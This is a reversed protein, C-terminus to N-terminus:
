DTWLITDYLNEGYSLKWGVGNKFTASPRFAEPQSEDFLASPDIGYVEDLWEGYHELYNVAEKIIGVLSKLEDKSSTDFWMIPSRVTGQHVSEFQSAYIMRINSLCTSKSLNALKQIQSHIRTMLMLFMENQFGKLCADLYQPRHFYIFPTRESKRENDYDESECDQRSEQYIEEHFRFRQGSPPIAVEGVYLTGHARTEPDRSQQLHARFLYVQRTLEESCNLSDMTEKWIRLSVPCTVLGANHRTRLLIVCTTYYMIRLAMKRFSEFDIRLEALLGTPTKQLGVDLHEVNSKPRPAFIKRIPDKEYASLHHSSCSLPGGEQPKGCRFDVSLWKVNGRVLNRGAILAFEDSQSVCCSKVISLRKATGAYRFIHVLYHALLLGESELELCSNFVALDNNLNSKTIKPFNLRNKGISKLLQTLYGKSVTVCGNKPANNIQTGSTQAGEKICSTDNRGASRDSIIPDSEVSEVYFPLKGVLNEKSEKLAENELKQGEHIQRTPTGAITNNGGKSERNVASNPSLVLVKRFGLFVHIGLEVFISLTRLSAVRDTNFLWSTNVKHCEKVDFGTRLAEWIDHRMLHPPHSSLFNWIHVAEDQLSKYTRPTDHNTSCKANAVSIASETNEVCDTADSYKYPPSLAFSHTGGLTAAFSRSQVFHRLNAFLLHPSLSNRLQPFRDFFLTEALCPFFSLIVATPPLKSSISDINKSPSLHLIDQVNKQSLASRPLIIQKDAVEMNRSDPTDNQTSSTNSARFFKKISNESECNCFTKTAVNFLVIREETNRAPLHESLSILVSSDANSVMILIEYPFRTLITPSDMIENLKTDDASNCSRGSSCKSLASDYLLKRALAYEFERRKIMKEFLSGSPIPFNEPASISRTNAYSQFYERWFSKNLRIRPNKVRIPMLTTKPVIPIEGSRSHMINKLDLCGLCVALTLSHMVMDLAQQAVLSESSRKEFVQEEQPMEKIYETIPKAAKETCLSTDQLVLDGGLLVTQIHSINTWNLQPLFRDPFIASDKLLESASTEASIQEDRVEKELALMSSAKTHEGNEYLCFVGNGAIRISLFLGLMMQSLHILCQGQAACSVQHYFIEVLFQAELPVLKPGITHDNHYIDSFPLPAACLHGSLIQTAYNICWLRPPIRFYLKSIILKLISVESDHVSKVIGDQPPIKSPIREKRTWDHGVIVDVNALIGQLLDIQLASELLDEINYCFYEFDSQGIAGLQHLLCSNRTMHMTFNEGSYNNNLWFAIPLISKLFGSTENEAPTLGKEPFQYIWLGLRFSHSVWVFCVRRLYADKLSDEKQRREPLQSLASWYSSFRKRAGSVCSGKEKFSCWCDQLQDKILSTARKQMSISDIQIFPQQIVSSTYGSIKSLIGSPLLSLHLEAKSFPASFMPRIHPNCGTSYTSTLHGQHNDVLHCDPVPSRKCDNKQMMQLSLCHVLYRKLSLDTQFRAVWANWTDCLKSYKGITIDSPMTCPAAANAYETPLPLLQCETASLTYVLKGFKKQGHVVFFDLVSSKPQKEKLFLNRITTETASDAALLLLVPYNSTEILLRQLAHHSRMVIHSYSKATRTNFFEIKYVSRSTSFRARLLITEQLELYFAAIDPFTEEEDRSKAHGDSTDGLDLNDSVFTSQSFPLRETVHLHATYQILLRCAQSTERISHDFNLPRPDSVPTLRLHSYDIMDESIQSPALYRQKDPSQMRRSAQLGAALKSTDCLVGDKYSEGDHASSTCCQTSAVHQLSRVRSHHVHYAQLIIPLPPLFTCFPKQTETSHRSSQLLNRNQEINCTSLISLFYQAPTQSIPVSRASVRRTALLACLWSGTKEDRFIAGGADAYLDCRFLASSPEHEDWESVFRELGVDSCAVKGAQSKFNSALALTLNGCPILSYHFRQSKTHQIASGRVSLPQHFKQAFNFFSQLHYAHSYKRSLSHISRANVGTFNFISNSICTTLAILIIHRQETWFCGHTSHSLDSTEAIADRSRGIDHLCGSFHCMVHAAKLWSM